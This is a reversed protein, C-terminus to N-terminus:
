KALKWSSGFIWSGLLLELEFCSPSALANGDRVDNVESYKLMITMSAMITMSSM